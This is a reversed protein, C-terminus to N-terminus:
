DAKEETELEVLGTWQRLNQLSSELRDSGLDRRLWTLTTVYQNLVKRSYLELENAREYVANCRQNLEANTQNDALLQEYLVESKAYYFGIFVAEVMCLMFLVVFIVRNITNDEVIYMKSM